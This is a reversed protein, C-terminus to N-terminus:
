IDTPLNVFEQPSHGHRALADVCRNMERYVPVMLVSWDPLQLFNLIESLIPTLPVVSSRRVQVSTVVVQSDLEFIITHLSLQRALRIGLLLGCFEAWIANYNRM